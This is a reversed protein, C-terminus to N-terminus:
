KGTNEKLVILTKPETNVLNMSRTLLDKDVRKLSRGGDGYYPDAYIFKTVGDVTEYGCVVVFHTGSLRGNYRDWGVIDSVYRVAVLCRHGSKLQKLIIDCPKDGYINEVSYQGESYGDILEVIRNATMGGGGYRLSGQDNLKHNETYVLLDDKNWDMNKESNMLITAATSGCAAWGAISEGWQGIAATPLIFANKKCEVDSKKVLLKDYRVDLLVYDEYGVVTNGTYLDGSRVSGKKKMTEKDYLTTDKKIRYLSSSSTQVQAATVPKPASNYIHAPTYYHLVVVNEESETTEELSVATTLDSSDNKTFVINSSYAVVSWIFMASIASYFITEVKNKVNM